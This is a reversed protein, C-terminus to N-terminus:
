NGALRAAILAKQDETPVDGPSVVVIRGPYCLLWTNMPTVTFYRRYAAEAGWPAPDEPLYATTIGPIPGSAKKKELFHDLAADYLRQFKPEYIDYSLGCVKPGDHLLAEESYSRRPLFFSGLDMARRSVHDYREGTLEALTLPFDQRPSVDWDRGRYEYTEGASGDDYFWGFHLVGYVVGGVLAFALVVDVALTGAINVGKSVKRKRLLATTRRVLFMLLFLLATYVVYFLIMGNWGSLAELTLYGATLVGVLALGGANLRRYARTNIPVCEGGAEISLRSKKRWSHYHRLTYIELAAVLLFMSGSFLHTNDEFLRYIDGTVLSYALSASMLLGIVLLVINAPLFNKKMSRHINELRLTEDTELPVANEDETSFIQMQCWDCVKEWGAAACLEALSEQGETPGPNFQSATDSYTVAYRVKAPDARRYKWFSNGAKELRWGQAAMAGLHEEVGRYDYLCLTNWRYKVNKM